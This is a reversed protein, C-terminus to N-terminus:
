DPYDVYHAALIKLAQQRGQTVPTEPGGFFRGAQSVLHYLASFGVPSGRHQEELKLFDDVMTNAPNLEQVAKAREDDSKAQGIAADYRESESQFQECLAQFQEQGAFQEALCWGNGLFAVAALKVLLVTRM